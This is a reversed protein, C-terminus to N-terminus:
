TSSTVLSQSQEEMIHSQSQEITALHTQNHTFNGVYEKSNLSQFTTGAEQAEFLYLMELPIPRTEISNM